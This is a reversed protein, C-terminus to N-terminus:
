VITTSFDVDPAILRTGAAGRPVTGDVAMGWTARHMNNDQDPNGGGVHQPYGPGYGM